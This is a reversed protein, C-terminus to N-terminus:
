QLIEKLCMYDEGELGKETEEPNVIRISTGAGGVIEMCEDQWIFARQFEGICCKDGGHFVFIAANDDGTSWDVWASGTVDGEITKCGDSVKM